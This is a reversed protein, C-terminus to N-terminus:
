PISKSLRKRGYPCVSSCIGCNHGGQFRAFQTKKYHDCAPADLIEHRPRGPTWTAGTLAGAPCADVCRTCTGCFARTIPTACPLPMDTFVTGLRVWPGFPRTVLQCHRGIWGIGARTAATKHPFDGRITEPDTRESASLPRAAHGHRQIEDGLAVSLDNIRQNLRTYEAAYARTPGNELEAMIGPAVPLAFSIARPFSAGSPSSPTTFPTLEATNFLSVDRSRLWDKTWNKM